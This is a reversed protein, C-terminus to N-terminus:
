LEKAALKSSQLPTQNRRLFCSWPQLLNHIIQTDHLIAAARRFSGLLEKGEYAM